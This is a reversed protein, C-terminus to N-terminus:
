VMGHTYNYTSIVLSDREGDTKKNLTESEGFCHADELNVFGASDVWVDFRPFDQMLLALNAHAVSAHVLLTPFIVPVLKYIGSEKHTLRFMVYKMETM